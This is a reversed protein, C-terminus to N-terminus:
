LKLSKLFTLWEISPIKPFLGLESRFHQSFYTYTIVDSLYGIPFLVGILIFPAASTSALLISIKLDLNRYITFYSILLIILSYNIIDTLM